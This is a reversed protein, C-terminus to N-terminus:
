LWLNVNCPLPATASVESLLTLHRNGGIDSFLLYGGEQFWVPGEAPWWPVGLDSGDGGFGSALWEVEQDLDIIMELGPSVQEIPM